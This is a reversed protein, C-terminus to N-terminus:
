RAAYCYVSKERVIQLVLQRETADILAAHAAIMPDEPEFRERVLACDVYLLVSLRRARRCEQAHRRLTRMSKTPSDGGDAPREEVLGPELLTLRLDLSLEHAMNNVRIDTKVDIVQPM